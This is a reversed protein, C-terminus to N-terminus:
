SSICLRKFQIIFYGCEKYKLLINNEVLIVQEDYKIRKLLRKLSEYNVGLPIALVKEDSWIEVLGDFHNKKLNEDSIHYKM